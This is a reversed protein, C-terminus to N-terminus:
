KKLVQDCYEGTVTDLTNTMMLQVYQGPNTQAIVDTIAIKCGVIKSIRATFYVAGTTIAAFIIARIIASNGM